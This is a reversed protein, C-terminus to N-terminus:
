PVLAWGLFQAVRVPWVHPKAKLQLGEQKPKPGRYPRAVHPPGPPPAIKPWQAASPKMGTAAAPTLATGTADLRTSSPSTADAARAVPAGLAVLLVATSLVRLKPAEM